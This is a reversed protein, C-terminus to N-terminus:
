HKKSAPTKLSATKVPEPQQPLKVWGVEDSGDGWRHPRYFIHVGIKTMKRMERIWNPRVYTAHYHTSKAIEPIWVQADLAQRAIKQARAWAGRENVYEPKGDCAFTFQCSLHRHANQFVVGCVDGPYYPSFARNLVVQAVGIQGKVPEARAEFYIAQALCHEAKARAKGTLDLEQAPTLPPRPRPLPVNVVRPFSPSPTSEVARTPEMPKAAEAPASPVVVPSRKSPYVATPIEEENQEIMNLRPEGPVETKPDVSARAQAAEPKLAISPIRTEAATVAPVTAPASVVPAPMPERKLEAPPEDTVTESLTIEELEKEVRQPIAIVKPISAVTYRADAKETEAMSPTMDPVPISPAVVPQRAALSPSLVDLTPAATAVAVPRKLVSASAATPEVTAVVPVPAAVVTKQLEIKPAEAKLVETKSVETKPVITQAEASQPAPLPPPTFPTVPEAEVEDPGSLMFPARQESSAVRLGRDLRAQVKPAEEKFTVLATQLPDIQIIEPVALAAASGMFVGAFVAGHRLIKQFIV